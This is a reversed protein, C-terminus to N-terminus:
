KLLPPLKSIFNAYQNGYNIINLSTFPKLNIVEDVEFPKIEEELAIANEKETGALLMYSAGASRIADHLAKFQKLYHITFYFDIGFKRAETIVNAVLKASTPVQHIEDTLIHCMRDHNKRQLASLWIRSMFYTVLTDKIQKNTFTHEPIQILIVKGEDMWKSFNQEYNINAKLMLRLYIDKQLVTLRDIIGDIKNEKTGVIKGTNDRDHLAELDVIEMDNEDFCGSYKAKRIYENRVKWNMLVNIVDVIKAGEHIFVVKCAADLYRTMRPKLPEEVLSNILYEVQRSLTNATKLKDWISEGPTIEPYAMAFLNDPDSLDIKIADVYKAIEESLECNKIYDFVIVSDGKKASEIAFRKTYESKGAGMSGIVIKPLSLINKNNPWYTEATKGQKEAIGIPINGIQLEKPVEVERTDKHNMNYNGQYYKTPMQMIQAIEKSSLINKYTSKDKLIFKNDGAMSNFAKLMNRYLMDKRDSVVTILIKTSYANYKSKEKTSNSLGNRMLKSYSNNTITEHEIKESSVLENAFDIATYIAGLGMNIAKVALDKTSFLNKTPMIGNEFRKIHEEVERHWTPSIPKMELRILIQEDNRLIKQTELINSLPNLGRFDTNLSLFFHEELELEKTDGILFYKGQKYTAKGWCVGLETEINDKLEDDFGIFFKVDGKSMLIEYTIIHSEHLHIMDAEKEYELRKLLTKYFHINEVLGLIKSNDIDINPIIQLKM